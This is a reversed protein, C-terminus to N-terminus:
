PKLKMRYAIGFSEIRPSVAPSVNTNNVMSIRWNIFRPAVGSSDRLKTIDQLYPTLGSAQVRDRRGTGQGPNYRFAECAYKPNLLNARTLAKDDASPDYIADSRAFTEAGSFEVVVQTGPVQGAPPPDILIDFEAPRLNVSVANLNPIGDANGKGPWSSSLQGLDHRNPRLTDIYGFTVVSVKRAFDAQAWYIHDDGTPTKFVGLLPDAIWGGQATTTNKPDILVPQNLNDIGGSTHVRMRMYGGNYYGHGPAPFPPGFYGIQFLNAGSAFGNDPDDPYVMFDM